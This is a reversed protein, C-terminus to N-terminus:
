VVSRTKLLTKRNGTETVGHGMNEYKEVYDGGRSFWQDQRLFLKEIGKKQSETDWTKMSKWM